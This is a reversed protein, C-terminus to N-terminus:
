DGKKPLRGRLIALELLTDGPLCEAIPARGHEWYRDPASTMQEATMHDSQYGREKALHRGGKRTDQARM